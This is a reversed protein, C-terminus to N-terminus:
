GARTPSTSTSARDRRDTSEHRHGERRRGVVVEVAVKTGHLLLDGREIEWDGTLDRGLQVSPEQAVARVRNTGLVRLRVVPEGAVAHHVAEAQAVTAGFLGLEKMQEVTAAPYRDAHDYEKVIPKVEKEVWRDISALLRAEDDSDINRLQPATM